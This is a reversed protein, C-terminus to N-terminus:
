HRCIRFSTRKEVKRNEIGLNKKVDREQIKEKGATM